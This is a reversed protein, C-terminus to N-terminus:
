NKIELQEGDKISRSGKIVIEDGLNLGSLIHTQGKYTMGTEVSIKSATNDGNVTFVYDNGVADQMIASSLVVTASDQEFDRIRVVSLLNPKLYFVPNELVISLHFTRNDPNIFQGTSVVKAPYWKDDILAFNVKAPNGVAVQAVYKESVDAVIYANETNVVRVVPFGPIALEGVKPFVEDVIGSYPARIIGKQLQEQLTTITQGLRKKNTKAQLYQVESGIKQEWLKQQREFVTKALEYQTKVEQINSNIVDTNLVVLTQGASVQQGERVLIQKVMGGMEANITVSKEAEVVGQVEFYHEFLTPELKVTSVLMKRIHITTDLAAIQEIIKSVLEGIIDQEQELQERRSKLLDLSLEYLEDQIPKLEVNVQKAEISDKASELLENLSDIQEQLEKTELDYLIESIEQIEKGADTYVTELSDKKTKLEKISGEYKNGCAALFIAITFVVIRNM